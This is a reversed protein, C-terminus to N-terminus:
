DKICRVSYGSRKNYNYEESYSPVLCSSPFTWMMVKGAMKIGYDGTIETSCWWYARNKLDNYGTDSYRQGSGLATFGTENTAKTWEFDWHSTGVERLKDCAAGSFSNIKPNDLSNILLSWEDISPVHWGTPCLKNGSVTFWNYLAGYIPKNKTDNNYWCYAGTTLVKWNSDDTVNPIPEGNNYKTTKLNEAMWVQTGIQVVPYNNGDADTCEVFSFALTKSKTPVDTAITTYKGSSGTYKLRDGTTYQMTKEAIANKLEMTKVPIVSNGLYSIRPTSNTSGNSVLKGIYNYAQSSIRVNYVGSKLDSIKFSNIGISLSNHVSLIKRGDIDFLEISAKGSTTAVFDITSNDIMPNPYIRLSNNADDIIPNTGTITAVLHLTETGSITISKGQTLNEVTVSGVTTSSGTGAFSIQYDQAQSSAISFLLFFIFVLCNLKLIM